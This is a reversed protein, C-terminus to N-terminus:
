IDDDEEKYTLFENYREEIAKKDWYKGCALEDAIDYGFDIIQEKEMEKAQEFLECGKTTNEIRSGLKNIMEEILWEVATQKM